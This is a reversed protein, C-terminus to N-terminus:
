YGWMHEIEQNTYKTYFNTTTFFDWVIRNTDVSHVGCDAVQTRATKIGLSFLVAHTWIEFALSHVSINIEEGWQTFYDQKAREALGLPNSLAAKLNDKYENGKFKIRIWNYDKVNIDISLKNLRDARAKQMKQQWTPKNMTIQNQLDKATININKSLEYSVLIGYLGLNALGITKALNQKANYTAMSMDAIGNTYHVPGFRDDYGVGAANMSNACDAANTSGVKGKGYSPSTPDGCPANWGGYDGGPGNGSMGVGFGGPGGSADSGRGFGGAGGPCGELGTPDIYNIPNCEAYAYHNLGSMTPDPTIFIGDKPDYYRANYYYLGSEKDFEQGDWQNARIKDSDCQNRV